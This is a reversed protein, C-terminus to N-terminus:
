TQKGITTFARNLPKSRGVYRKQAGNWHVMVGRLAIFCHLM